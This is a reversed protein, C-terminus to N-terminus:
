AIGFAGALIPLAVQAVTAVEASVSLVERLRSLLPRAVAVRRRSRPPTAESAIAGLLEIAEHKQVDDLSTSAAVAETLRKLASALQADGSSSILSVATDVQQLDGSNVVGVNSNTVNISHLTAGSIIVPPQMPPKPPRIRVGAIMEMEEIAREAQADLMAIQRQEITAHLSYCQLCLPVEADGVLYLAPRDCQHCKSM